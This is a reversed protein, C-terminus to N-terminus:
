SKTDAAKPRKSKTFAEVDREGSRLFDLFDIGRNRCTECISLLVLYESMAIASPAGQFMVRSRAYAKIAHEANNNNWPVGNHTLFTFLKDRNKEFRRKLQLAYEICYERLSLEKYFRYKLSSDRLDKATLLIPPRPRSRVPSGRSAFCRLGRWYSWERDQDGINEVIQPM